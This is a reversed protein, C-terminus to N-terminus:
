NYLWGPMWPNQCQKQMTAAYSLWPFRENRFDLRWFFSLSNEFLGTQTREPCLTRIVRQLRHKFGLDLQYYLTVNAPSASILPSAHDTWLLKHNLLIWFRLNYGFVVNTHFKLIQLYGTLAIECKIRSCSQSTPIRLKNLLCMVHLKPLLFSGSNVGFLCPQNM